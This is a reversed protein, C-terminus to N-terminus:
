HPGATRGRGCGTTREVWPVEDAQIHVPVQVKELLTSIGELSWGGLEGGLHDPHFHTGLVGTLRMGDAELIDLLDQVNYAPDVAMAEGTERDGILYVLN